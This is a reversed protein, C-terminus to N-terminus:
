PLEIVDPGIDAVVSVTVSIVVADIVVCFLEIFVPLPSTVPRPANKLVNCVVAFALILPRRNDPVILVAPIVDM